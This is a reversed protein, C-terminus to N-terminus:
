APARLLADIRAAAGAWSFRERVLARAAAGASRRADRDRLLAVVADALGAADRRVFGDHGPPLV